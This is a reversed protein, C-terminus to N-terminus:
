IEVGPFAPARDRVPVPEDGVELHVAVAREEIRTEVVGRLERDRGLVMEAVHRALVVADGRLKRCEVEVLERERRRSRGRAAEVLVGGLAAARQEGALRLARAAVRLPE